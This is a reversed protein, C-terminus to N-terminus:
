FVKHAITCYLNSHLTQLSHLRALTSYTITTVFTYTITLQTCTYCCLLYNHNYSRTIQITIFSNGIRVADETSYCPVIPSWVQDLLGFMTCYSWESNFTLMITKSQSYIFSVWKYYVSTSLCTWPTQQWLNNGLVSPVFYGCQFLVTLDMGKVYWSTHWLNYLWRNPFSGTYVHRFKERAYSYRLV